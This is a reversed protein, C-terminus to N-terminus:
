RIKETLLSPPPTGEMERLSKKVFHNEMILPKGRILPFFRSLLIQRAGKFQDPMKLCCRMRRLPNAFKSNSLALFSLSTKRIQSGWVRCADRSKKFKLEVSEITTLCAFLTFILVWFHRFFSFNAYFSSLSITGARFDLVILSAITAGNQIDSWPIHNGLQKENGIQVLPLLSAQTIKCESRAGSGHFELM